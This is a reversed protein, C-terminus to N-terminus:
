TKCEGGTHALSECKVGLIEIWTLVAALCAFVHHFEVLVFDCIHETRVVLECVAVLGCTIYLMFPAEDIRRLGKQKQRHRIHCHLKSVLRMDYIQLPTNCVGLIAGIQLTTASAQSATQATTYLAYAM